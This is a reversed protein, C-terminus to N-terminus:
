YLETREILLTSGDRRTADRYAPVIEGPHDLRVVRVTKLMGRFADTFDGLHQPGPDLPEPTAIATRVIVRPRFTSYLPLKDVHLVLQCTALLLFNFRPYICIPLDGALSAGLAMGMQMDEAVPMEVLKEPPLRELTKRMATGECAVAQGMFISRPQEALMHMAECLNNFYAGM